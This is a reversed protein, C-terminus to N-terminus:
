HHNYLSTNKYSMGYLDFLESYYGVYGENFIAAAVYIRSKASISECYFSDKRLFKTVFKHFSENLNTDWCHYINSLYKDTTYKQFVGKVDLYISYDEPNNKSRYLLKSQKEEDGNCQLFPCWDGCDNHNNFHHEVVSMIINRYIPISEASERNNYVALSGNRKLRAADM